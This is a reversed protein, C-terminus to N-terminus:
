GFEPGAVAYSADAPDFPPEDLSMRTFQRQAVFGAEGLWSLFEARGDIADVFVPERLRCAAASALAVATQTDDAVVPGLQTARRGNRGLAFGDCAGDNNSLWALDARGRLLAALVAKRDAGFAQADFAAMAGLDDDTGACLRPTADQGITPREAAFRTFTYRDAFGFRSYVARGADTADLRLALGLERARELCDETLRSALGRRRWPEAVLVMSLWAFRTGYPLILASAVPTESQWFGFGEGLGLMLRWDNETQNWNAHDSLAVLRAADEPRLARRELGGLDSGATM